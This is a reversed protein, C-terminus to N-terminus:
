PITGKTVDFVYTKAGASHLLSLLKKAHEHPTLIVADTVKKSSTKALLGERQYSYKGHNSYDKFGYLTRHLKTRQSPSAKLIYCILKSAMIQRPSGVYKYVKSSNNYCYHPSIFLLWVLVHSPFANPCSVHLYFFNTLICRPARQVLVIEERHQSPSIM